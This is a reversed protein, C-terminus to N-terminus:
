RIDHPVGFGTVLAVVVSVAKENSDSTVNAHTVPKEVLLLTGM